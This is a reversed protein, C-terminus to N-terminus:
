VFYPNPQARREFHADLFSRVAGGARRAQEAPPLDAYAAIPTECEIEIGEPLADILDGLPLHGNGPYLRGHRAEAALAEMGPSALAADCIQAFFIRQPPIRRIDAPTGGSRALHLSDVLLGFNDAGVRDLLGMAVEATRAESYPVFELALRIGSEAAAECFRAMFAVWRAHDGDLCTVLMTRSGLAVTADIAPRLADLSVDPSLHYTSTNSLRLGHGDLRDKLDRIVGPNGVISPFEDAPSRGTIRLSVSRFGAAAAGEIVETPTAKLLTLWGLTLTAM